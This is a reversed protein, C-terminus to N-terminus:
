RAKFCNLSFRRRKDFWSNTLRFGTELALGSLMTLEYKYSNETHISEGRKFQIELDLDKIRVVQAERSFLHMEIRSLEENFISRHEFKSLDFDGDLERNIRILLNLNFAATVGLADNYAPLLIDTGKKLDAGILFSDGPQLVARMARLLAPREDLDLNGISSGLFIAITRGGAGPTQTSKALENLATSYDTAFATIQIGPYLKLLATSGSELSASSIDIPLYSLSIGKALLAGILHRTKESTGSGLEILKVSQSSVGVEEVIQEANALLIEREDRTVYYEPLFCIAEFLRSGLDDYFYKPPLQKPVSTLGTRVDQAFSASAEAAPFRVINLRGAALGTDKVM